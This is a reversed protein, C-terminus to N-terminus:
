GWRMDPICVCNIYLIILKNLIPIWYCPFPKEQTATLLGPCLVCSGGRLRVTYPLSYAHIHYIYILLSSIKRFFTYNDSAGLRHNFYYQLAIWWHRSVLWFWWLGTPVNWLWITQIICLTCTVISQYFIVQFSINLAPRPNVNSTIFGQFAPYQQTRYGAWGLFMVLSLRYM